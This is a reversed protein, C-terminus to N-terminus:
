FDRFLKRVDGGKGVCEWGLLYLRKVMFYFTDFNEMAEKSISFGM